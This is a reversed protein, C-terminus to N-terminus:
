HSDMYPPALRHSFVKRESCGGLVDERWLEETSFVGTNISRVHPRVSSVQKRSCRGLVDEKLLGSPLQFFFLVGTNIFRVHPVYQFHKSESNRGLVYKGELVKPPFNWYKYTECSSVSFFRAIQAAVWLVDDKPEEEFNELFFFTGTYICRVQPRM